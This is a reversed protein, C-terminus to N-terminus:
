EPGGRLKSRFITNEPAQGGSENRHSGGRM